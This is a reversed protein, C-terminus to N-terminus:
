QGVYDEDSVAVKGAAQGANDAVVEDRDRVSAEQCDGNEEAVVLVADVAQAQGAGSQVLEMMKQCRLKEKQEIEIIWDVRRGTDMLM